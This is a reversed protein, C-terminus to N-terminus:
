NKALTLLTNGSDDVLYMKNKDKDGKIGRINEFTNMIKGETEMEPCAMMTAAAPAMTIRSRNQNNVTVTSNFMNCGANGHVKNDTMNFEIFPMKEKQIKEGRVEVINWRGDLNKADVKVESCSTMVALMVPLAMVFLLVKKM